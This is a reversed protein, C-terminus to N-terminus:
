LSSTPAGRDFGLTDSEIFISLDYTPPVISMLWMFSIASVYEYMTGNITDISTIAPYEM